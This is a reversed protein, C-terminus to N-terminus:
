CTGKQSRRSGPYTKEADRIKSGPDGGVMKLAKHCMKQYFDSCYLEKDIQEFRERYSLFYFYNETKLFKHSCFFIHYCFL